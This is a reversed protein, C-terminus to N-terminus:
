HEAVGAKVLLQQFEMLRHAMEKENAAGALYKDLFGPSRLFVMLESRAAEAATGETFLGEAIMRLLNMGKSVADGDQERLRKFFGNKGLVKVCLEDLRDAVKQRQFDQLQSDLVMRQLMGLSRLREVVTGNRKVFFEENDPSNLVPLIFNAIQRRNAAGTLGKEIELLKAIRVAPSPYDALYEAVTDAMLYRGCRTTMADILDAGGFISGKSKRMEGMLHGAFAVEEGLDGDTLRKSSRIEKTVRQALSSQCNPMSGSAILKNLKAVAKENKAHGVDLRGRSLAAISCLAQGLGGQEGIFEQLVAVGSLLEGVFADAVDLIWRPQGPEVLDLVRAIKEGATEADRLYGVLGCNLLFTRDPEKRIGEITNQFNAVTIEPVRGEKWDAKLKVIAQDILDYLQKIRTQVDQGTEHVQILAARQVAGQLVMGSDQLDEVYDPSHILETATIKKRGLHDRLLRSISYRGEFSYFDSPKWCAVPPGDEELDLKSQKRSHGDTYIERSHFTSNKEDFSEKLVRVCKYGGRIKQEKADEIADKENRHIALVTWSSGRQGQVEYHIKDKLAAM